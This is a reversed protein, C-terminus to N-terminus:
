PESLGNKLIVMNLLPLALAGALAGSWEAKLQIRGMWSM